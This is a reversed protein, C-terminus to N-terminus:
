WQQLYNRRAQTLDTVEHVVNGMLRSVCGQLVRRPCKAWMFKFFDEIIWGYGLYRLKRTPQVEIGNVMFNITGLVRRGSMVIAETKEPAIDLGCEELWANVMRITQNARAM